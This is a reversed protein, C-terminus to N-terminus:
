NITLFIFAYEGTISTAANWGLIPTAAIAPAMSGITGGALTGVAKAIAGTGTFLVSAMGHTQIWGFNGNTIITQAVGVNNSTETGPTVVISDYPHKILIVKSSTTLAVRIPDELTIVLGAAAATATNSKIRYLQGQGPTVDVSVYGGTLLNAAVTTSTSVTITTDGVAQAAVGLGGSPTQNTADAAASQYVKGPVTSVAGIKSYRFGRGDQSEAYAGLTMQQVTSDVFIDQGAIEPATSLSTASM